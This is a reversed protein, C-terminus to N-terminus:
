DCEAGAEPMKRCKVAPAQTTSVEIEKEQPNRAMSIVM